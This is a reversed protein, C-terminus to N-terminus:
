TLMHKSLDAWSSWLVGKSNLVINEWWGFFVVFHLFIPLASFSNIVHYTFYTEFMLLNLPINNYYFTFWNVCFKDYKCFDKLLSLQVKLSLGSNLYMSTFSLSQFRTTVSFRSSYFHFLLLGCNLKWTDPWVIFVLRKRQKKEIEIVLKRLFISKIRYLKHM